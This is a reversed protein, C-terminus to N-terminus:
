KVIRMAVRREAPHRIRRGTPDVCGVCLSGSSLRPESTREANDANARISGLHLSRISGVM